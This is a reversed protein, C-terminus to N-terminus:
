APDDPSAPAGRRYLEYRALVDQVYRLALRGQAFGLNTARYYTPIELLPLVHALGRTWLNEHLGLSAAIQQADLVHGPGLLYASLVIALHDDGRSDRFMRSLHKLYRVGTQVNSRVSKAGNEVGMREALGPMIQMLGTAGKPSVADPEFRSERHIVAAVLRWDLGATKAERAILDDYRSIAPEGARLRGNVRTVEFRSNDVFYRRHLKALMGESRQTKLYANLSELLEPGADRVFLAGTQPFCDAELYPASRVAGDRRAESGWPLVAVDAGGSRLLTAAEDPSSVFRPELTVGIQSAFRALLDYEFGHAIGRHVFYSLTGRELAPRLFGRKRIEELAPPELRYPLSPARNEQRTRDVLLSFLPLALLVAACALRIAFKMRDLGASAAPRESGSDSLM